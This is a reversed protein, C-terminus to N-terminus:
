KFNLVPIKRLTMYVNFLKDKTKQMVKRTKSDSVKKDYKNIRACEALLLKRAKSINENKM